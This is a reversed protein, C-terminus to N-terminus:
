PAPCPASPRWAAQHVHVEIAHPLREDPPPLAFNPELRLGVSVIRDRQKVPDVIVTAQPEDATRVAPRWVTVISITTRMM